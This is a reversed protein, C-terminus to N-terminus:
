RTPPSRSATRTTTRRARCSTWTRPSRAAGCPRRITPSGACVLRQEFLTGTRPYGNARRELRCTCAGPTRRRRVHQDAGAERRGLVGSNQFTTIQVVGGNIKVTKGVDAGSFIAAAHSRTAAWRPARAPITLARSTSTRRTAVTISSTRNYGDRCTARLVARHRRRCATCGATAFVSLGGGWGLGSGSQHGGFTGADPLDHQGGARHRPRSPRAPSTGDEDYPVNIFAAAGLTWSTPALRLLKQPAVSEHFLFM